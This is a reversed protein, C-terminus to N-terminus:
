GVTIDGQQLLSFAKDTKWKLLNRIHTVQPHGTFPLLSFGLQKEEGTMSSDM